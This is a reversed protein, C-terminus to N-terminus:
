VVDASENLMKPVFLALRETEIQVIVQELTADNRVGALDAILCNPFRISTLANGISDDEHEGDDEDELATRLLLCALLM